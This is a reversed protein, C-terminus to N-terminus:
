SGTSQCLTSTVVFLDDPNAPTVGPVSVLVDGNVATFDIESGSKADFICKLPDATVGTFTASYTAELVNQFVSGLSTVEKSAIKGQDSGSDYIDLDVSLTSDSLNVIGVTTTLLSSIDIPSAPPSLAPGGSGPPESSAQPTPPASQEGPTATATPTGEPPRTPQATPTPQATQTPAATIHAPTTEPTGIPAQTTIAPQPTSPETPAISVCGIVVLGLSLIALVPRRAM